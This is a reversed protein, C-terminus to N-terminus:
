PCTEGLKVVGFDIKGEWADAEGRVRTGAAPTQVCVQWNRDLLQARQGRLDHSISFFVGLGQVENQAVQLDKGRFHPMVVDVAPGAPGADSKAVTRDELEAEPAAQDVAQDAAAQPTAQQADRQDGDGAVGLALAGFALVGTLAAATLLRRRRYWSVPPDVAQEVAWVRVPPCCASLSRCGPRSWPAASRGWVSEGTSLMTLPQPADAAAAMAPYLSDGDYTLGIPMSHPPMM